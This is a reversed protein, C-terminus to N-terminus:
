SFVGKDVWLELGSVFLSAHAGIYNTEAWLHVLVREQELDRVIGLFTNFLKIAELCM